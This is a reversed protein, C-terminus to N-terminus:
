LVIAHSPAGTTTALASSTFLYGSKADSERGSQHPTRQWVFFNGTLGWDCKGGFSKLCKTQRRLRGASPAKCRITGGMEEVLGFLPVKSPLTWREITFNYKEITVM